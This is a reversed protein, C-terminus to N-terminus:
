IWNISCLMLILDRIFCFLCFWLDNIIRLRVFACVLVLMPKEFRWNCKKIIFHFSFFLTLITQFLIPNYHQPTPHPLTDQSWQIRHHFSRTTEVYYNSSPFKRVSAYAIPILLQQSWLSECFALLEISKLKDDAASKKSKYIDIISIM